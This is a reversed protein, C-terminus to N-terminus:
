RATRSITIAGLTPNFATCWGARVLHALGEADNADKTEYDAVRMNPVPEWNEHKVIIIHDESL